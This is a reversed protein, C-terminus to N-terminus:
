SWSKSVSLDVPIATGLVQRAALEMTEQIMHVEELVSSHVSIVYEDHVLALLKMKGEYQRSLKLLEIGALKAVTACSGQPRYNRYKREVAAYLNDLEKVAASSLHAIKKLGQIREYEDLYSKRKIYDDIVIYGDKIAKATGSDFYKKLTKYAEFYQKVLKTAEKLPIGYKANLTKPGGGFLIAFGVSKAIKRQQPSVEQVNFIRKATESHYDLGKEFVELIVEDKSLAGLARAEMQEYDACVIFEDEEKAEFCARYEEKSPINQCNPNLSSTRGTALIQFYTSHISGSFPNYHKEIFAEGYTSSRKMADKYATYLSVVGDDELDKLAQRSVSPRKLFRAVQIPSNWNIDAIQKLAALLEESEQKAKVALARWKDVNLPLGNIEMESLVHIFDCELKFTPMLENELLAETLRKYANLAYYVDLCAYYIQEYSFREVPRLFSDRLTKTIYPAGLYGQLTYAYPDYARRTVSELSHFGTPVDKGCHLVMSAIMTDVLPNYLRVKFTKYISVIDYKLNHGCLTIDSKAIEKVVQLAFPYNENVDLYFQKDKVALTIMVVEGLTTECDLAVISNNLATKLKDLTDLKEINLIM